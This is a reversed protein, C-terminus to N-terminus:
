WCGRLQLNELSLKDLIGEDAADADTAQRALATAAELMYVKAAMLVKVLAEM